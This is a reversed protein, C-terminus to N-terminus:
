PNNTVQKTINFDFLILIYLLDLKKELKMNFVKLILKVGEKISINEYMGGEELM